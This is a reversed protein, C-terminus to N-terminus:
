QYLLMKTEQLTQVLNIINKHYVWALLLMPFHFTCHTLYRFIKKTGVKMYFQHKTLTLIVWLEPLWWVKPNLLTNHVCTYKFFTDRRSWIDSCEVAHHQKRITTEKTIEGFSKLTDRKLYILSSLVNNRWYSIYM